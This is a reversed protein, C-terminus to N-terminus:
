PAPAEYPPIPKWDEQFMAFPQPHAREFADYESHHGADGHENLWDGLADDGKVNDTRFTWRAPYYKGLQWRAGCARCQIFLRDNAM